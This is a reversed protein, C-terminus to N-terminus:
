LANDAVEAVSPRDLRRARRDTPEPRGVPSSGRARTPSPKAPPMNGRYLRYPFTVLVRRAHRATRQSRMADPCTRVCPFRTTDGSANPRRILRPGRDHTRALFLWNLRRSRQPPLGQAGAGIPCIPFSTTHCRVVMGHRQAPVGSRVCCAPLDSRDRSELEHFRMSHSGLLPFCVHGM